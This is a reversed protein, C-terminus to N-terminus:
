TFETEGAARKDEHDHIVAGPQASRATRRMRSRLARRAVPGLDDIVESLVALQELTDLAASAGAPNVGEYLVIGIFAAAVGQALGAPDAVDAIPTDATLRMLASEIEAVWMALCDRATLALREDQQAGALVQALAIVNGAGREMERIERGIRLLGRLSGVAAFRQRYLAVRSATAQRCAVDVLEESGFHYFILAQNVGSAAAIARASTGAIGRARLTEIAGDLLKRRTDASRSDGHRVGVSEAESAEANASRASKV